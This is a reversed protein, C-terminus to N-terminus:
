KNLIMKIISSYSVGNLGSVDIRAFYVGSNIASANFKVDHYGATMNSNILTIVEQGLVNFVKLTVKSDVPLSFNITTSPNFPNPYNQRLSFDTPNINEADVIIEPSYNYSGDFDVQKLRYTFVGSKVFKDAFSYNMQNTSTGNGSVFGITEFGNGSNKEVFFGSNNMETATTWNLLVKGESVSAVFSTLEVPIYSNDVFIETALSVESGTYGTAVGLKWSNNPYQISGVAGGLMAVTKPAQAVWTNTAVKYVYCDTSGTWATSSSGGVFIIGEHWKAADWRFRAGLPFPAGTTWTIQSRDTQSIEGVYTTAVVSAGAGGVNVIKNGYIAMAGGILGEPLPTCSRWTNNNVNYVYVTALYNTGDYGGVLYILSDQYAYAKGWGVTAPIPAVTTWANSSITYKYVTNVYVPTSAGDSGGILYVAGQTAAATTVVRPVPLPALTTWTNTEFNFKNAETKNTSNGGISFLYGAAGDYYSTGAGMYMGVPINPGTMWTSNSVNISKQLTDNLPNVDGALQTYAKCTFSGITAVWGDFTVQYTAGAALGTVTKTSTYGGPTITMTVNFTQTASGFNKVTAKPAVSGPVMLSAIDLSATGVDNPPPTGIKINDIYLNNGYASIAKFKLKNTGVPLAFTKTAWQAATPVFQTSQAPATVLEGAVGGNLLILVTWNTGGDTSYEIQLQDNETQYTAYAHDFKLSDGAVSVPFTSSILSQTTNTTASYFNFEASATGVGYGSANTARLWYVTGTFDITWGTPPWTVNEFDEALFSLFSESPIGITKPTQNNVVTQDFISNHIPLIKPTVKEKTQGYLTITVVCFLVLIPLLKKM